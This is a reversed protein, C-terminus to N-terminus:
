IVTSRSKLYEDIDQNIYQYGTSHLIDYFKMLYDIVGYKEFLIIAQKGTLSKYEKYSELCFIIFYYEKSM